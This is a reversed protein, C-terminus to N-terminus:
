FWFIPFDTPSSYFILNRTAPASHRSIMGGAEDQPQCSELVCRPRRGALGSGLLVLLHSSSLSLAPSPGKGGRLEDWLAPGALM